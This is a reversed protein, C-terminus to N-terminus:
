SASLMNRVLNALRIQAIWGNGETELSNLWSLKEDSDLPSYFPPTLSLFPATNSQTDQSPTFLPTIFVQPPCCSCRPHSILPLLSLLHRLLAKTVLSCSCFMICGTLNLVKQQTGSGTHVLFTFLTSHSVMETTLVKQLFLRTHICILMWPSSKNQGLAFICYSHLSSLNKELKLILSSKM